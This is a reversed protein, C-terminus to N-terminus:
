KIMQIPALGENFDRLDEAGDPPYFAIEQKSNLFALGNKFAARAFGVKYDWALGFIPKTLETGNKDLYGWFEDRHYAAFGDAFKNIQAYGISSVEKGEDDLLHFSGDYFAAWRNLGLYILQDFGSGPLYMKNAISYLWMRNEKQVSLMLGDTELIRAVKVQLIENGNLDLLMADNGQQGVIQKFTSTNILHDFQPEVIFKGAVDIIGQKDELEVVALGQDFSWARTYAPKVIINGSTDIFGFLPGVKVLARGNSFDDVATWDKSSITTGGPTIYYEPLDFTKVRARNEHFNYALRFQPKIILKGSTDIYGWLGDQNVAAKGESFRSVEDFMAPIVLEGTTDIFGWRYGPSEYDALYAQKEDTISNSDPKCAVLTLLLGFWGFWSYRSVKSIGQLM